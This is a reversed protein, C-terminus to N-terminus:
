GAATLEVTPQDLIPLQQTEDNATCRGVPVPYPIPVGAVYPRDLPSDVVTIRPRANIVAQRLRAIDAAQRIIRRNAGALKARDITGRGVACLLEDNEAALEDVRKELDRIRGNAETLTLVRRSGSGRAFPNRINM